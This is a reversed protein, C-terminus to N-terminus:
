DRSSALEEITECVETLHQFGTPYDLQYIPVKKALETFLTFREAQTQITETEAFLRHRMIEVVAQSPPIRKMDIADVSDRRIPVIIRSLRLPKDCFSSFKGKPIPVWYKERGIIVPQLENNVPGLFHAVQDSWMRLAPYSPQVHFTSENRVIPIADDGVLAWGRSLLAAMLSSKGARSQGVFSTASDNRAVATAHLLPMGNRGLWYPLVRNLLWIEIMSCAADNLCHCVIENRSVYFDLDGTFRMLDNDEGRYIRLYSDNEAIRYQLEFIATGWDSKAFNPATAVCQFSFDHDSTPSGTAVNRLRLNSPFTKGFAWYIAAFSEDQLEKSM